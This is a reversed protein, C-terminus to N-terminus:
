KMLITKEDQPNVIHITVNTVISLDRENTVVAEFDYLSRSFKHLEDVVSITGTREEM